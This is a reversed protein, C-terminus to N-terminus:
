GRMRAVWPSRRERELIINQLRIAAAATAYAWLGLLMLVIGTLLPGSMSPSVQRAISTARHLTNWWQVSFYIVPVNVVGVLALVASARDARRSDEISAQLGLIGLYLFLLLLESSLRADWVWWAGWSPRGWVAGTWLAIFTFVAGTPALAPPLMGALRLKFILGLAAGFAMLLYILLSMWAAPVHIYVIRLSEGLQLDSPARFFGVYLGASCLLLAAAACWRALRAAQPFVSQPSTKRAWGPRALPALPVARGVTDM